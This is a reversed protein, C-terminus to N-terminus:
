LLVLFVGAPAPRDLDGLSRLLLWAGGAFAAISILRFIWLAGLYSSNRTLAYGLAPLLVGLPSTFGHVREGETYVLGKGACLNQSHRFTIFYDEWAHHTYLAYALPVAAAFATLAVLWGTKPRVGSTM